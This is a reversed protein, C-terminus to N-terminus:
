LTPDHYWEKPPIISSSALWMAVTMGNDSKLLPDHWLEKPPIIGNWALDM